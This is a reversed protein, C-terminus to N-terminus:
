SGVGGGVGCVGGWVHTWLYPECVLEEATALGLASLTALSAELNTVGRFMVTANGVPVPDARYGAFSAGDCYMLYAASYQSFVPNAVPDGDSYPLMPAPPPPFCPILAEADCVVAM